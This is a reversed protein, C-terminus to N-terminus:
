TKIEGTEGNILCQDGVVLDYKKQSVNVVVPMKKERAIIALHSLMGGSESIIGAIRDFYRTLDPSLVSAYLIKSMNKYRPDDIMGQTVLIGEAIGSSVGQPENIQLPQIESSLTSPFNYAAFKEYEKKRRECEIESINASIFEDITGFYINKFDKFGLKQAQEFLISRLGNMKKVILWRGFERLRTYKMAEEIAHFIDQSRSYSLTKWWEKYPQEQAASLRVEYVFKSEDAIELSNGEWKEPSLTTIEFKSDILMGRMWDMLVSAVVPEGRILRELRQVAKGAGLNIEFILQYDSLLRNLFLPLELKAEEEELKTQMGSFLNSASTHSEAWKMLRRFAHPVRTLSPTDLSLFSSRVVSGKQLTAPSLKKKLKISSSLPPKAFFREELRNLAGINKLTQFSGKWSALRPKLDHHSLFSYSPLLTKIEEERDVFLENGLIKLFDREQYKVGYKKYV